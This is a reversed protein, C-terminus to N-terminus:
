LFPSSHDHHHHHDVMGVVGVAAVGLVVDLDVLALGMLIYASPRLYASFLFLKLPNAYINPMLM